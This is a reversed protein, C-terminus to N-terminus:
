CCLARLVGVSIGHSFSLGHAGTGRGGAAAIYGLLSAAAAPDAIHATTIPWNSLLPPHTGRGAHVCVDVAAAAQSPYPLASLLVTYVSPYNNQTHVRATPHQKARM